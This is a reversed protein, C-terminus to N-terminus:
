NGAIQVLQRSLWSGAQQGPPKTAPQASPAPDRGKFSQSWMLNAIHTTPRMQLPPDMDAGDEVLLLLTKDITPAKMQRLALDDASATLTIYPAIPFPRYFLEEPHEEDFAPASIWDDPRPPAIVPQPVPVKQPASSGFVASALRALGSRDIAAKAYASPRFPKPAPNSATKPKTIPRVAPRPEQTLAAVRTPPSASRNRLPLPRPTVNWGARRLAARRSQPQLSPQPVSARAVQPAPWYSPSASAIRRRPAEAPRPPRLLRPTPTVRPRTAAALRTRRTTGSPGNRRDAYFAAVRQALAPNSRKARYVDRKTIPGGRRPRHLTRGNPFLLALEKRGM